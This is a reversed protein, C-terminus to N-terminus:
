SFIICGNADKQVVPFEIGNVILKHNNGTTDWKIVYKSKDAHCHVLIHKDDIDWKADTIHFSISSSKVVTEKVVETKGKKAYTIHGAWFIPDRRYPYGWSPFCTHSAYDYENDRIAELGYSVRDPFKEVFKQYKIFNEHEEYRKELFEIRRILSNYDEKKIFM